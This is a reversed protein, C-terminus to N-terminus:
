HPVALPTSANGSADVAFVLPQGKLQVRGAYGAMPASYPNQVPNSRVVVRDGNRFPGGVFASASDKIFIAPNPDCTDVAGLTLLKSSAAIVQVSCSTTPPTDDTASVTLDFLVPSVPGANGTRTFTARTEMYKGVVGAPPVGSAVGVWPQLDLNALQEAARVEVSLGTNAPITANWSVAGWIVQSCGGDTIVTWTGRPATTGLQTLGTADTYTYPQNGVPFVGLPAGDTGRFKAIKDITRLILWVNDDSDVVVGRVEGNGGPQYTKSWLQNNNKDYKTVGGHNWGDSTNGGCFISGQSDVAIGMCPFRTGSAPTSFTETAPDFKIFSYNAQAALYVSNNGIAIGYDSAYGHNYVKKALTRTNLKLLTNGLSAGWLIGNGDVISGYPSNPSVDIPGALIHGDVPSIKWYNKTNYCGLWINGDADIALSRGYSGAAGVKAVWAVREDKIENPDIMKNGNADGMPMIEAPDIVGNGNADYSTDIVGNGNRDIGGSAFIKIVDPALNDFHRNAVYLNGESDVCTRSPAAGSWANGWHNVYGPQGAPGFWTRYRALEKGTETDIKSVTDEGANAIWMTKYTTLTSNLQLQDHVVTHNVNFLIGQDFDADLTYTKTAAQATAAAAMAAIALLGALKVLYYERKM